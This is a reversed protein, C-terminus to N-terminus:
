RTIEPNIEFLVEEGSIEKKFYSEGPDESGLAPLSDNQEKCGITLFVEGSFIEQAIKKLATIPGSAFSAITSIFEGAVGAQILTKHFRELAIESPITLGERTKATTMGGKGLSRCRMVALRPQYSKFSSHYIKKIGLEGCFDFHMRNKPTPIIPASELFGM